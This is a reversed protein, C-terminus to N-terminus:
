IILRVKEKRIIRRCSREKVGDLNPFDGNQGETKNAEMSVLNEGRIGESGRVVSYSIAAM